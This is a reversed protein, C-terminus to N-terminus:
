KLLPCKCRFCVDDGIDCLSACANCFIISDGSKDYKEYSKLGGHRRVRDGTKYYNYLTDDDNVTIYHKKGNEATIEVSYETYNVWRYEDKGYTEKRRKKKVTRDTVTGDWTRSRKRGMITFFGIILFMGAIGLGHYLGEPNSMGDVGMEGMIYFAVVVIVAIGVSFLAVWRNTNKVYKKFAPDHIKDSYGVRGGKGSPDPKKQEAGCAHCFIAGEPLEAGCQICGM